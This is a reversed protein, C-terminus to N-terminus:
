LGRRARLDEVTTWRQPPSLPGRGLVEGQAWHEQTNGVITCRRRHIFRHELVQEHTRIPPHSGGGQPKRKRRALEIKIQIETCSRYSILYLESAMKDGIYMWRRREGETKAGGTKATQHTWRRLVRRGAIAGTQTSGTASFVEGPQLLCRVLAKVLRLARDLAVHM